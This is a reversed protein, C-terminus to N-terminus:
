NKVSDFATIPSLCSGRIEAGTVHVADVLTSVTIRLSPVYLIWLTQIPLPWM